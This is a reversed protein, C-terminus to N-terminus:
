DTLGLSIITSKIQMDALKLTKILFSIYAFRKLQIYYSGTM